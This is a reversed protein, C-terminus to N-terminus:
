PLAVGMADDARGTRGEWMRRRWCPADMSLTNSTGRDARVNEEQETRFRRGDATGVTAPCRPPAGRAGAIPKDARATCRLRGDGEGRGFRRCGRFGMELSGKLMGAMEVHGEVEVPRRQRGVRVEVAACAVQERGREVLAGLRGDDDIIDEDGLEVQAGHGWIELDELNAVEGLVAEAADELHAVRAIGEQSQLSAYLYSLRRFRRSKAEGAIARSAPKKAAATILKAPEANTEIPLGALRSEPHEAM